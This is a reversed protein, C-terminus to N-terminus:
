RGKASFSRPQPASKLGQVILSAHRSSRDCRGGRPLDRREAVQEGRLVKAVMGDFWAKRAAPDEIAAPEKRYALKVGGELGMGGFERARGDSLSSPRRAPARRGHSLAGLGYGKRLVITFYAGDRPRRRRVHAFCHRVQATKEVEPGVMMGPTDCLSVIPMDFADCLQM